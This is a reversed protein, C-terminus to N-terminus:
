RALMRWSSERNLKHIRFAVDIAEFKYENGSENFEGGGLIEGFFIARFKELSRENVVLFFFLLLLLFKSGSIIVFFGPSLDDDERAANIAVVGGGLQFSVQKGRIHGSRRGKTGKYVGYITRAVM